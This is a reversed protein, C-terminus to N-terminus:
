VISSRTLMAKSIPEGKLGLRRISRGVGAAGLGLPGLGVLAGPALGSIVGWLDRGLPGRGLSARGLPGEGSIGEWSTVGWLDRGSTGRLLGMLPIESSRRLHLWCYSIAAAASKEPLRNLPRLGGWGVCVACHINADFVCPM